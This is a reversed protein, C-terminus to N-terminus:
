DGFGYEPQEAPIVVSVEVIQATETDVPHTYGAARAWNLTKTLAGRASSLRVYLSGDEMDTFSTNKVYVWQGDEFDNRWKFSENANAESYRARVMWRKMKKEKELRREIM